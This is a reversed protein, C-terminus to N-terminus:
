PIMLRYYFDCTTAPFGYGSSDSTEVTIYLNTADLSAWLCIRGDNSNWPLIMSAGTIKVGVQFILNDGLNHPITVTTQTQGAGPLNTSTITGSGQKAVKLYSYESSLIIDTNM